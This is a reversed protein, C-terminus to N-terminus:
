LSSKLHKRYLAYLMETLYVYYVVKATLIIPRMCLGSYQKRYKFAEEAWFLKDNYLQFGTMSNKELKWTKMPSRIKNTKNKELKYLNWKWHTIKGRWRLYLKSMLLILPSSCSGRFIKGYIMWWSQIRNFPRNHGNPWQVNWIRM